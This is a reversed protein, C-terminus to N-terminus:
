TTPQSRRVNEDISVESQGGAAADDIIEQKGTAQTVVFRRVLRFEKGGLHKILEEHSMLQTACRGQADVM